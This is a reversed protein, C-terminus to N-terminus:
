KEYEYGLQYVNLILHQIYIYWNLLISTFLIYWISLNSDGLDVGWDEIEYHHESEAFM